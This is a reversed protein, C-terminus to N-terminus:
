VQSLMAVESSFNVANNLSVNANQFYGSYLVFWDQDNKSLADGYNSGEVWVYIQDSFLGYVSLTNAYFQASGFQFTLICLNGRKLIVNEKLSTSSADLQFKGRLSQQDKIMTSDSSDLVETIWSEIIIDSLVPVPPGLGGEASFEYLKGRSPYQHVRLFFDSSDPDDFPMSVILQSEAVM